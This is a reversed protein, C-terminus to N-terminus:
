RTSRCSRTCGPVIGFATDALLLTYGDPSARAVLDTGIIAGAGPRNDVVVTQGLAEGLRPALVRATFDTTGGPAYAAVLRISRDPYGQASATAAWGLALATALTSKITM